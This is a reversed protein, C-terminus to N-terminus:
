RGADAPSASFQANTAGSRRGAPDGPPGGFGVGLLVTSGLDRPHTVAVDVHWSGRRVAFGWALSAPDGRAGARLRLVDGLTWEAGVVAFMPEKGVRQVELALSLPGAAQKVGVAARRALGSPDGPIEGAVAELVAALQVRGVGAAIGADAAASRRPAFGAGSVELGRLAVGVASVGRGWAGALRAEREAYFETGFRRFGLGGLVEGACAQVSLQSETLEELGFPHCASVQGGTGARRLAGAAPNGWVADESVAVVGGAAASAPDVALREFAARAACPFDACALLLVFAAGRRM